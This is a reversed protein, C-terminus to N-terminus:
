TENERDRENEKKRERETKGMEVGGMYCGTIM